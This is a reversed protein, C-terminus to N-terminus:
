HSGTNGTQIGNEKEMQNNILNIKVPRSVKDPSGTWGNFRPNTKARKLSPKNEAPPYLEDHRRRLEELKLRAASKTKAM